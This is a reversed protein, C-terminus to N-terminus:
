VERNQHILCGTCGKQIYFCNRNNMATECNAWYYGDNHTHEHLFSLAEPAKERPVNLGRENKM